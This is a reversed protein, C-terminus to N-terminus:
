NEIEKLITTKLEETELISLNSGLEQKGFSWPQFGEFFSECELIVSDIRTAVFWKLKPYLTALTLMKDRFLLRNDEQHPVKWIYATLEVCVGLDPFYFDVFKVREEGKEDIWVFPHEYLVKQKPIMKECWQYFDVEQKSRFHISSYLIKKSCMKGELQRQKFHRRRLDRLSPDREYSRKIGASRKEKSGPAFNYNDRGKKFGQNPNLNDGYIEEYTKGKHSYTKACVRCYDAKITKKKGCDPCSQRETKCSDCVSAKIDAALFSQLCYICTCEKNKIKGM